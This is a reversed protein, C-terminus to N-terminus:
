HPGCFVTFLDFDVALSLDGCINVLAVSLKNINLKLFDKNYILKNTLDTNKYIEIM